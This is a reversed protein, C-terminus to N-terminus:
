VRDSKRLHDRSNKQLQESVSAHHQGSTGYTYAQVLNATLEIKGMPELKRRQVTVEAIQVRVDWQDLASVKEGRM